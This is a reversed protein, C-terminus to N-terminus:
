PNTKKIQNNKLGSTKSLRFLWVSIHTFDFCITIKERERERERSTFRTVREGQEREREIYVERIVRGRQIALEHKECSAKLGFEEICESFPM